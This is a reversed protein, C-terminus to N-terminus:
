RRSEANEDGFALLASANVALLRRTRLRRVVVAEISPVGDVCAIEAGTLVTIQRSAPRGPRGLARRLDRAFRSRTSRIVVLVRLGRELADVAAAVAAADDGAIVLDVTHTM